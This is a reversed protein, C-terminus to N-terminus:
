YHAWTAYFPSHASYYLFLPPPLPPCILLCCPCLYCLYTCHYLLKGNWWGFTKMAPASIFISYIYIYM